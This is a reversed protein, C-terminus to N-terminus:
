SVRRTHPFHYMTINSLSSFLISALQVQIRAISFPQPIKL